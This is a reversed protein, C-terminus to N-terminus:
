AKVPITFKLTTGRGRASQIECEGGIEVLRRKMNALGNGQSIRDSKQSSILYPQNADFGCGDDTVTLIIKQGELKLAVRV